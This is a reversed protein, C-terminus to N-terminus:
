AEKERLSFSHGEAELAARTARYGEEVFYATQAFDFTGYGELRPRVLTLPPGSWAALKLRKRQQAMVQYVRQHIGVLGQALVAEADVEGDAGADVAIVRTAGRNMARGIPLTDLVGGDVFLRGRIEAPPYFVPLACSAYVADALGIDHRGGAGFWEMAGSGLDVANVGLPVALEHFSAVPLVRDIYERLPVDHFVSPQRIGNLLVAWRNLAVIEAKDLALARATMAEPGEGAAILAGVLAGISTGVIEDVVIGAELLARWAGVHTLGKIGGGGLVLVVRETADRERKM